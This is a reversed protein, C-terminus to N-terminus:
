VIKKLWAKALTLDEDFSSAASLASQSWTHEFSSPKVSGSWLTQLM